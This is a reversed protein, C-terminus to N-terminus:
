VMGRTAIGIRIENSFLRALYDADRNRDPFFHGPTLLEHPFGTSAVINVGSVEALRILLDARRGGAIGSNDVITRGGAEKFRLLQQKISEFVAAEDFNAEPALNWGPLGLLVFENLSAVGVQEPRLEGLVSNVVAEM